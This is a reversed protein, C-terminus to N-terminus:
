QEAAAAVEGTPFLVLRKEIAHELLFVGTARPPELLFAFRQACKRGLREGKKTSDLRRDATRARDGDPLVGVTHGTPQDALLDRDTNKGLMKFDPVGLTAGLSQRTQVALVLMADVVAVDDVAENALRAGEFVVAPSVIQKGADAEAHGIVFKQCAPWGTRATFVQLDEIQCGALALRGHFRCNLTQEFLAPHNVRCRDFLNHFFGLHQIVRNSGRFDRLRIELLVVHEELRVHREVRVLRVTDLDHIDVQCGTKFRVMM